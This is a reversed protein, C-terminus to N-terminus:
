PKRIITQKERQPKKKPEPAKVEEYISKPTRFKDVWPSSFQTIFNQMTPKFNEM